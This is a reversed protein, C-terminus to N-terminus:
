SVGTRPSGPPMCRRRGSTATVGAPDRPCQFVWIQLDVTVSFPSPLSNIRTALVQPMFHRASPGMSVLATLDAHDLSLQYNVSTVGSRAYDRYTGALRQAKRRDIGVMGLPRQLEGLHGAGPAAILLTGGPILIRGTEAANRPGFISLVLAASRDAFPLPQWVDAGLAAARPHARAARRLAPVSLDLCAGHRHPLADLVGALYYGTGGALDAVLGPLGRDHRAALSRVAAALPQYHGRGLFRERAAVMASTDATGPGARGATLNVYGHRAIDFGHNRRCALQSGGLHLAGACVPCRLYAAATALARRREAPSPIGDRQRCALDRPDM